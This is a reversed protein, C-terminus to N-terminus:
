RVCQKYLKPLKNHIVKEKKHNDHDGTYLLNEKEKEKLM